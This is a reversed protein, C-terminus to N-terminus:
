YGTKAAAKLILLVYWQVASYCPLPPFIFELGDAGLSVVDVFISVFVFCRCVEGLCMQAFKGRCFLSYLLKKQSLM